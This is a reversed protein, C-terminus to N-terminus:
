GLSFLSKFQRVPQFLMVSLTVALTTIKSITSLNQLLDGPLRWYTQDVQETALDAKIAM